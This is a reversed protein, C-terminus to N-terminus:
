FVGVHLTPLTVAVAVGVVSSEVADVAVLHVEVGEEGAAGEEEATALTTDQCGALLNTRPVVKSFGVRFSVAFRLRGCWPISTAESSKTTVIFM